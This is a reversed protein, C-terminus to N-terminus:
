LTGDLYQQGYYSWQEATWGAPLGGPPLPPGALQPAAPIAVPQEFISEAGGYMSNAVSDHAPVMNPNWATDNWEDVNTAGRGRRTIMLTLLLGLLIVGAIIGVWMM